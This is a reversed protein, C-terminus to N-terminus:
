NIAQSHIEVDKRVGKVVEITIEIRKRVLIEQTCFPCHQVGPNGLMKILQDDNIIHRCNDHPCVGTM